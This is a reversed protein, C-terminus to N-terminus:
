SLHARAFVLQKELLWEQCADDGYTACIYLALKEKSICLMDGDKGKNESGITLVNGELDKCAGVEGGKPPLTGPKNQKPFKGWLWGKWWWQM